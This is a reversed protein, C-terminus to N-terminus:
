AMKAWLKRERRLSAMGHKARQVMGFPSRRPVICDCPPERATRCLRSCFDVLVGLDRCDNREVVAFEPYDRRAALRDGVFDHLRHRPIRAFNRAHHADPQRQANHRQLRTHRHRGLRKKIRNDDRPTEMRVNPLRLAALEDHATRAIRVRDCGGATRVLEFGMEDAIHKFQERLKVLQADHPLPCPDGIDGGIEGGDHALRRNGVVEDVCTPASPSELCGRDAAFRHRM